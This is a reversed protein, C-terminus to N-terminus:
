ASAVRFAVMLEESKRLLSAREPMVRYATPHSQGAPEHPLGITADDKGGGRIRRPEGRNGRYSNPRLHGPPSTCLLSRLHSSIACRPRLFWGAGRNLRRHTRRVPRTPWITRATTGQVLATGVEDVQQSRGMGNVLHSVRDQM